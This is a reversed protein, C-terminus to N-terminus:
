QVCPIWAGHCIKRVCECAHQLPCLLGFLGDKLLQSCRWCIWQVSRGQIQRRRCGAVLTRVHDVSLCWFSDWNFLWGVCVTVPLDVPVYMVWIICAFLPTCSSSIWKSFWSGSWFARVPRRRSPWAITWVRMEVVPAASVPFPLLM